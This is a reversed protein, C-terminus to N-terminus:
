APSTAFVTTLDPPITIVQQELALAFIMEIPAMNEDLGYPM